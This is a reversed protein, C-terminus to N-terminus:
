ILKLNHILISCNKKEKKKRKKLQRTKPSKREINKPSKICKQINKNACKEPM